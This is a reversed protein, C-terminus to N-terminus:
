MTSAFFIDRGEIHRIRVIISPHVNKISASVHIRYWKYIMVHHLTTDRINCPKTFSNTKQKKKLFLWVSSINKYKKAQVFVAINSKMWPCFRELHFIHKFFVFMNCFISLSKRNWEFRKLWKTRQREIQRMKKKWKTWWTELHQDSLVLQFSFMENLIRNKWFIQLSM